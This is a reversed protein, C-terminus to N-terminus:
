RVQEVLSRVQDPDFGVSRGVEEERAVEDLLPKECNGCKPRSPARDLDIRNLTLCFPCRITVPRGDDSSAM